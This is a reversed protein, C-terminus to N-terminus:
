IWEKGEVGYDVEQHRNEPKCKALLDDLTPKKRVPVIKISGNEVIMEIESGQEITIQEAIVSPIRVALSNGWRQVKTTVKVVGQNDPKFDKSLKIM